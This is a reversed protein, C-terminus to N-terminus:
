LKKKNGLLVNSVCKIGSISEAHGFRNMLSIAENISMLEFKILEANLSINSPSFGNSPLVSYFSVGHIKIGKPSIGSFIYPTQHILYPSLCISTEERLERIAAHINSEHPEVKGTIPGYYGDDREFILFQGDYYLYLAIIPTPTDVMKKCRCKQSLTGRNIGIIQPMEVQNGKTVKLIANMAVLQIGALTLGKRIFINRKQSLSRNIM